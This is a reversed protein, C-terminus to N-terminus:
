CSGRMGIILYGVANFAVKVKDILLVFNLPIESVNEHSFSCLM